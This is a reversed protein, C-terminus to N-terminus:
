SRGGANRDRSPYAIEAIVRALPLAMGFRASLRRVQLELAGTSDSYDDKNSNARRTIATVDPGSVKTL